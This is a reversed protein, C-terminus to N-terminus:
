AKETSVPCLKGGLRQYDAWFAPYSKKVCESGLIIVAERCISAAIAAAMAIRHDNKADVVGGTLTAPYVTLTNESAEARGGLSALLEIIAAVRDSEKLRLRAIDTFVAGQKATAVVSLIPILDPINSASIVTNNELQELLGVIARDGQSSAEELSTVCIRSGLKNAALWFAANSWDGEVKHPRNKMIDLTLDIYPRSAPAGTIELRSDGLLPMAMLLGSIYQSSVSGDMKYVGPRLQGQCVLINDTIRNFRCGMRQMETLLPDIPRSALQGELHFRADVGLAGVIPLLFRLTSGSEGCPLEASKPPVAIPKVSYGEETETIEAGLARLCAITAQVDEGVDGCAIFSPSEALAACILIRHACSKSAPASLSGSLHTPLIRMNRRCSEKFLQLLMQEDTSYIGCRGVAQPLILPMSAGEAKKDSLAFHHLVTPSFDTYVPLSFQGLLALIRTCGERSCIGLKVASRAAMAIGIAVAEGHSVTYNSAKEIAHGFTHGLNLLRRNGKDFEDDAVVRAKLEVCRAIVTERDFNLGTEELHSFLAEDFLVAYKIIEACGERFNAEPLTDLCATDCLVAVPQHFAGCLNKTRDLNIATKGGVSSDVMALLSTPVQIYDIGRMYCAAAFGALDGVVGGGLAILCDDRQLGANLMARMVALFGETSKSEEGPAIVSSDVSYGALTLQQALNEGCADWVHTDSVILVHKSKVLRPLTQELVSLVGQGIYVEYSKSAHVPVTKM